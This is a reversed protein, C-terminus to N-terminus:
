DNTSVLYVGPLRRQFDIEDFIKDRTPETPLGVLYNNEFTLKGIRTELIQYNRGDNTTSNKSTATTDEKCSILCLTSLFVITLILASKIQKM